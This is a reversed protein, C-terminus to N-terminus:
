NINTVTLVARPPESGSQDQVFLVDVTSDTIPVVMEFYPNEITGLLINRISGSFAVDDFSVTGEDTVTASALRIRFEAAGFVLNMDLTKIVPRHFGAPTELVPADHAVRFVSRHILGNLLQPLTLDFNVDVAADTGDQVLMLNTESLNPTKTIASLVKSTVYISTDGPVALRLSTAAHDVGLVANGATTRLQFGHFEDAFNESRLIADNAQIWEEPLEFRIFHKRSDVELEMVPDGAVLVTDAHVGRSHWSEPMDSLQMTVGSVTDGYVYDLNFTLEAFTINNNRFDDSISETPFFDLYGSADIQGIAPDEVTGFLARSAGESFAGGTVDASQQAEFETTELAVSLPEGAQPDLLGSGVNGPSSDCAQLFVAAVLLLCATLFPSRFKATM